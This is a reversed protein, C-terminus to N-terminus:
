VACHRLEIEPEMRAFHLLGFLQPLKGLLDPRRQLSATEIKEM